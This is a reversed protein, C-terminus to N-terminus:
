LESRNRFFLLDTIRNSLFDDILFHENPSISAKEGMLIELDTMSTSADKRGIQRGFPKM